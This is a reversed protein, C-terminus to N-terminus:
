GHRVITTGLSETFTLLMGLKLFYCLYIAHLYLEVVDSVVLLPHSSKVGQGRFIWESLQFTKTKVKGLDNLEHSTDNLM